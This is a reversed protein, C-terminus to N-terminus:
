SHRQDQAGHFVGLIVLEDEDGIDIRYVLIYPLQAMVFERTGQKRGAHGLRPLAGLLRVTEIIRLRVHEAAAADRQKIYARIAILHERSQRSWRVRM